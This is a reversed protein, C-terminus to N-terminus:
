ILTKNQWEVGEVIKYFEKSSVFAKTANLHNAHHMDTGIFSVLGDKILRLAIAKVKPGYYGSLSLLNVQMLVDRDKIEHYQQYNRHIYEYREPHALIPQIGKMRLDFIVQYLNPSPGVYSMEILMHNNGFTLLQENNKINLELADDIMYEAAAEIEVTVNNEQLAKRAVALAALITAPTNNHVGPLIHPTCILKKYGMAQLEKVYEVTQEVEQLGDDIAPLLHSHMDIGLFSLDPQIKKQLFSFLM